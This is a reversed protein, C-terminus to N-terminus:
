LSQRLLKKAEEVGPQDFADIGYLEGALACATQQFFFFAGLAKADVKPILFRYTPVQSNRLSQETALSAKTVVESFTHPALFSFAPDIEFTPAGIAVSDGQTELFGVVKDRPGEKLLQLVSHQDSTGLAAVPTPGAHDKGLSEAWLQVYWDSIWKLPSSYPMLYQIKCGHETDWLFKGLAYLYAPSEAPAFKELATRMEAAGRLLDGPDIGGLAAPFLGVATLVSFRGGINPPVEFSEWARARALRRLEGKEPDTIVVIGDPSLDHSFHFFGALTEVTGGSKSLVVTAVKKGKLFHRAERIAGSDANSLWHLPFEERQEPTQLAQLMAAPGLYSGGIGVCLAGKFKKRLALATARMRDVENSSAQLPWDYFGIAGSRFRERLAQDASAVLSGYQDSWRPGTPNNFLNELSLTLSPLDWHLKM